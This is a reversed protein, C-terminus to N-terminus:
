VSFPIIFTADTASGSYFKYIQKVVPVITMGVYFFCVMFTDCGLTWYMNKVIKAVGKCHAPMKQLNTIKAFEVLMERFPARRVIFFAVHVTARLTALFPVITTSNKTLEDAHLV